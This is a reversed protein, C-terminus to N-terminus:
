ACNAAVEQSGYEAGSADSGERAGRGSLACGAIDQLVLEPELCAGNQRRLLRDLRRAINRCPLRNCNTHKRVRHPQAVRQIAHTAIDAPLGSFDESSWCESDARLLRMHLKDHKRWGLKAERGIRHRQGTNVFARSLETQLKSGGLYARLQTELIEVLGHTFKEDDCHLWDFSPTALRNNKIHSIASGPQDQYALVTSGCRFNRDCRAEDERPRKLECGTAFENLLCCCQRRWPSLASLKLVTSHM